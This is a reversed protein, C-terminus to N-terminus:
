NILKLIVEKVRSGMISSLMVVVECFFNIEFM